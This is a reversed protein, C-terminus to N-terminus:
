KIQFIYDFRLRNQKRITISITVAKFIGFTLRIIM